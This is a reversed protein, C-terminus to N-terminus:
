ESVGDNISALRDVEARTNVLNSKLTKYDGLRYMEERLEFIMADFHEKDEETPDMKNLKAIHAIENNIGIYKNLAQLADDEKKYAVELLEQINQDMKFIQYKSNVINQKYNELDM